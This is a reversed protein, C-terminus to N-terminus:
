NFVALSSQAEAHEGVFEPFLQRAQMVLALRIRDNRKACAVRLNNLVRAIVLRDPVPQLFAPSWNAVGLEAVLARCDDADMGSRGRFPDAFWDPDDRDGVVFHAPLGIGALRVGVRRAVEIAVISLTIPMGRRRVLVRDLCSNEWSHYTREDGRFMGSGFLHDIVGDRTPTPCDGALEDLMALAGIVDLAPQLVSSLAFALEDLDADADLADALPRLRRVVESQGTSDM